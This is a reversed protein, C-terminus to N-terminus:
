MTNGANRLFWCVNRARVNCGHVVNSWGRLLVLWYGSSYQLNIRQEYEDCYRNWQIVYITRKKSKTFHTQFSRVLNLTVIYVLFSLVSTYQIWSRNCNKKQPSIICFSLRQVGETEQQRQFLFSPRIRLGLTVAFRDMKQPEVQKCETALVIALLSDLTKRSNSTVRSCIGPAIM